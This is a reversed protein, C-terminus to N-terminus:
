TIPALIVRDALPYKRLYMQLFRHSILPQEPKTQTETSISLGTESLSEMLEWRTLSVVKRLFLEGIDMFIDIKRLAYHSVDIIEGSNKDRNDFLLLKKNSSGFEYNAVYECSRAYSWLLQQGYKGGDIDEMAELGMISYGNYFKITSKLNSTSVKEKISSNKFSFNVLEETDPAHNIFNLIGGTKEPDIFGMINKNHSNLDQLASCHNKTELEEITPDLKIIGSSPIFTGSTLTKGPPVFVGKGVDKNEMSCLATNNEIIKVWQLFQAEDFDNKYSGDPNKYRIIKGLDKKLTYLGEVWCQRKISRLIYSIPQTEMKSGHCPLGDGWLFMQPSTYVPLLSILTQNM